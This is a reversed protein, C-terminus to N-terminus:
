LTHDSKKSEVSHTDSEMEGSQNFVMQIKTCKLITQKFLKSTFTFTM